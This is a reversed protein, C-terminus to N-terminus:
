DPRPRDILWAEYRHKRVAERWEKAAATRQTATLNAPLLGGKEAVEFEDDIGNRNTDAFLPNEDALVLGGLWARDKGARILFRGHNPDVGSTKALPINDAIQQSGNYLDWVGAKADLRITLVPLAVLSAGGFIQKPVHMGAERWKLSGGESEGIMLQLGDALPSAAVGIWAGDVAVVTADSAHLLFSVWTPENRNGRLPKSWERAADLEILRTTGREISRIGAGKKEDGSTTLAVNEYSSSALPAAKDPKFKDKLRPLGLPSWLKPDLVTAGPQNSDSALASVSGVIVTAIVACALVVRNLIVRAIAVSAWISFEDINKLHSNM